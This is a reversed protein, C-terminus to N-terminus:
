SPLRARHWSFHHGSIRTRGPETQCGVTRMLPLRGRLLLLPVGLWCTGDGYIPNPHIVSMNM